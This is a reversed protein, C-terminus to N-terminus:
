MQGPTTDSRALLMQAAKKNAEDEAGEIQVLEFYPDAPSTRRIMFAPVMLCLCFLISVTSLYFGETQDELVGGLTTGPERPLLKKDRCHQFNM